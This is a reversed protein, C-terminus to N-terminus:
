AFAADTKGDMLGLALVRNIEEEAWHGSVDAFGKRAGAASATGAMGLVMALALLLAMLKKRTKM